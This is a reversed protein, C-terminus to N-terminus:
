THTVLCWWVYAKSAHSKSKVEKDMWLAWHADTMMMSCEPDSLEQEEVQQSRLFLVLTRMITSLHCQVDLLHQNPQVCFWTGLQANFSLLIVQIFLNRHKQATKGNRSLVNNRAPLSTFNFQFMGVLCNNLQSKPVLM